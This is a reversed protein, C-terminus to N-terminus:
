VCHPCPSIDFSLPIIKKGEVLVKGGTVLHVLQTLPLNDIDIEAGNRSKGDEEYRHEEEEGQECM